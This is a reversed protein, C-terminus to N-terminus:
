KDVPPIYEKGIMEAYKQITIGIERDSVHGNAWALVRTALSPGFIGMLIDMMKDMEMGQRRRKADPNPKRDVIVAKENRLKADKIRKVADYAAKKGHKRIISGLDRIMKDSLHGLAAEYQIEEPLNLLIFRVQVWGRSKKIKEAVLFQDFGQEKLHKLALAEELINLDQRQLNESLNFIRATEKNKLKDSVIAKITPLKLLSTAKYRRYGAILLYKKSTKAQEEDNYPAVVVPQLLGMEKISEMLDKVGIPLIKSIRCNFDEDFHIDELPINYVKDGIQEM